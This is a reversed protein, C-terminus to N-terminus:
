LMAVLVDSATLPNLHFFSFKQDNDIWGMVPVDGKFAHEVDNALLPLPLELKMNQDTHFNAQEKIQALREAM